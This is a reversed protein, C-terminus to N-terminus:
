IWRSREKRISFDLGIATNISTELERIHRCMDSFHILKCTESYKSGEWIPKIHEECFDLLAKKTFSGIWADGNFMRIDTEGNSLLYIHIIIDGGGTIIIIPHEDDYRIDRFCHVYPVGDSSQGILGCISNKKIHDLDKLAKDKEFTDNKKM